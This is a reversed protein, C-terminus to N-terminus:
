MWMSCDMMHIYLKSVEEPYIIVHGPRHSSVQADPLIYGNDTRVLYLYSGKEMEVQFYGQSNSRVVVDPGQPLMDYSIYCDIPAFTYISDLVDYPFLCIDQVLMRDANGISDMFIDLPPEIQGFIGQRINPEYLGEPTIVVTSDEMGPIMLPKYDEGCRFMALEDLQFLSNFIKEGNCGTAMIMYDGRIVPLLYKNLGAILPEKLLLRQGSWVEIHSQYFPMYSGDPGPLSDYLYEPCRMNYQVQLCFRKVFDINFQAYGFDEPPHNGVRVVQIDVSTSQEAQIRFSQPLPNMVLGALRSGELPTAWLVMGSTDTLMFETLMFGGVPLALSRTVLSSGFRILEVPEKDYVLSGDEGVITLLATTLYDESSAAKQLNDELLDFGLTLRGNEETQNCSTLALLGIFLTTILYVRRKM